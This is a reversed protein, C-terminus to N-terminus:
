MIYPITKQKSYPVPFIVKKGRSISSLAAYWLNQSYLGLESSIYTGKEKLVSKCKGFTSKGVSDFIFDYTDQGETFDEKTYDLVKDAGLTKVLEMNKASCTATITVDFLRVFQLLASGIAGTAGHILVTQGSQIQVKHIFSVTGIKPTDYTIFYM